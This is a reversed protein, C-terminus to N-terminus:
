AIAEEMSSVSIGSHSDAYIAKGGKILLMQPSQHEVGFKNAIENSIERFAILDLYYVQVQQDEFNWSRELRSKAMSSISCRTSHKFIAVPVQHSDQIIQDLQEISNLTLWNM